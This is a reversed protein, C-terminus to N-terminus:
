TLRKSPTKTLLLMYKLAEIRELANGVPQGPRKGTVVHKAVERLRSQIRSKFAPLENASPQPQWEPSRKADEPLAPNAKEIISDVERWYDAAIRWPAAEPAKTPERGAPPAKPQRPATPQKDSRGDAHRRRRGPSPDRRPTSIDHWEAAGSATRAPSRGRSAAKASWRAGCGTCKFFANPNVNHCSFCEWTHHGEEKAQNSPQQHQQSHRRAM